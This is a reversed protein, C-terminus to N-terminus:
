RFCDRQMTKELQQRFYSSYLYLVQVAKERQQRFRESCKKRESIDSVNMDLYLVQVEKEWQQRFRESCLYLM